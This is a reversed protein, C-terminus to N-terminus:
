DHCINKIQFLFKAVMFLTVCNTSTSKPVVSEFTDIRRRHGENERVDRRGEDTPM